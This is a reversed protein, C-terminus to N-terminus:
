KKMYEIELGFRLAQEHEWRAGVSSEWDALFYLKHILRSEFIPLYFDTLLLYDYDDYERSSRIRQVSIEFPLQDFVEIGQQQLDAIARGFRKLNEEVSGVGGTSIPGCVEAVPSSMKKLVDEAIMFLDKYTLAKGLKDFHEQTWYKLSM